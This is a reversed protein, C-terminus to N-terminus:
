RGAGWRAARAAVEAEALLRKERGAEGRARLAKFAVTRGLDRDRAEWVVGFGGRGVERILDYRGLATGPSLGEVWESRGDDSSGRFVENVLSTLTGPADDEPTSPRASM